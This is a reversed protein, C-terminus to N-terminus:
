RCSSLWGPRWITSASNNSRRGRPAFSHRSLRSILKSPRGKSRMSTRAGPRPKASARFGVFRSNKRELGLGARASAAFTSASRRFSAAARASCNTESSGRTSKSGNPKRGGSASSTRPRPVFSRTVRCNPLLGVLSGVTTCARRRLWVLM